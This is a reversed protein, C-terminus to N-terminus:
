FGFSSQAPPPPGVAVGELSLLKEKTASGGPASFGGIRNGAAFIRHCPVILPVPNQGLAQGTERAENGHGAAEALGGYTTTQGFGIRRAAEYIARRFGDVGDLDIALSTFDVAEGEAYRRIMAVARSAHGSRDQEPDCAVAGPARRRLRALTQERGSGPLHLQAIGRRSWVLGVWGIATEFVTFRLDVM